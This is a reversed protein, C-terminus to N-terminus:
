RENALVFVVVHSFTYLLRPYLERVTYERKRSEDDIAFGLKRQRAAETMARVRRSSSSSEDVYGVVKRRIEARIGDGEAAKMAMPEGEGGTLGECDAFIRPFQTFYSDPDGYLHIDASTPVTTELGGVVPTPFELRSFSINSRQSEILM